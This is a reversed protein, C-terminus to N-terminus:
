HSLASSERFPVNLARCTQDDLEIWMALVPEDDILQPPGVRHAHMGISRLIREVGMATFTILRTAGQEMAAKVVAAFLVCFRRRAEDRSLVATEGTAKTSFRSLEWVHSAHPAPAGNMLGPFVEDLLYAQTTPLLRACGCVSENADRAIVYLTDPRDFQDRELGNEVPLQWGLTEIFVEYRYAALALELGPSLQSSIGSIVTLM